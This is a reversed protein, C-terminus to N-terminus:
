HTVIERTQCQTYLHCLDMLTHALYMNLDNIKKLKEVNRSAKLLFLFM